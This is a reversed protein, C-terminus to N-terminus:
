ILSYYPYYAITLVLLSILMATNSLYLNHSKRDNNVTNHAAYDRFTQHLYEGFAENTWGMANKRSKESYYEYTEQYYNELVVANPLMKYTYGYWSRIFFFISCFLAACGVLFILMFACSLEGSKGRVNDNFLFLAMASLITFVTMPMKLRADLKERVELEHFYLKEYFEKREKLEM